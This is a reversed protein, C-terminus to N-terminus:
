VHIFLKLLKGPALHSATKESEVYGNVNKKFPYLSAYTVAKYEKISVNKPPSRFPYTITPLKTSSLYVYGHKVKRFGFLPVM